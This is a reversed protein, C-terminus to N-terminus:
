QKLDYDITEVIDLTTLGIYEAIRFAHIIRILPPDVIYKRSTVETIGMIRAMRRNSVGHIKMLAEFENRAVRIKSYDYKTM